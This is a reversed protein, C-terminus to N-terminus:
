KPINGHVVACLLWPSRRICFIKRRACRRVCSHIFYYYKHFIGLAFCEIKNNTSTNKHACCRLLLLTVPVRRETALTCLVSAPACTHSSSSLWTTSFTFLAIAMLSMHSNQREVKAAIEYEYIHVSWVASHTLCLPLGNRRGRRQVAECQALVPLCASLLRLQIDPKLTYEIRFTSVRTNWFLTFIFEFHFQTQAMLMM